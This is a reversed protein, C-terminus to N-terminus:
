KEVVADELPKDAFGSDEEPPRHSNRSSLGHNCSGGWEDSLSLRRHQDSGEDRMEGLSLEM